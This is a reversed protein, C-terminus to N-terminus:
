GPPSGRSCLCRWTLHGLTPLVPLDLPYKNIRYLHLPFYHVISCFHSANFLAGWFVLRTNLIRRIGPTEEDVKTSLMVRMSRGPRVLTGTPSWGASMSVWILSMIMCNMQLSVQKIRATVGALVSRAVESARLKALDTSGSPLRRPITGMKKQLSQIRAGGDPM